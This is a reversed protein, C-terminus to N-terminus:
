NITDLRVIKGEKITYVRDFRDKIISQFLRNIEKADAEVDTPKGNPHVYKDRISKINKLKDYDEKEIFNLLYLVALKRDEPMHNEDGFLTTKSLSVGSPAKVNKVKAYLTDTFSEAAIGNLAIVARWLGSIYAERAERWFDIYTGIELTLIYELEATRDVMKSVGNILEERLQAEYQPRLLKDKAHNPEFDIYTSILHDENGM